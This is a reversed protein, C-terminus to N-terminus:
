RLDVENYYIDMHCPLMREDEEIENLNYCKRRGEGM